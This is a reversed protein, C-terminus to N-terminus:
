SRNQMQMQHQLTQGYGRTDVPQPPNMPRPIQSMQQYANSLPQHYIQTPQPPMQHPPPQGYYSQQTHPHHHHLTNGGGYNSGYNQQPHPPVANMSGRYGSTM